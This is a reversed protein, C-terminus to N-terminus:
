NLAANLDNLYKDAIENVKSILCNHARWTSGIPAEVHKGHYDIGLNLETLKTKVLDSLKNWIKNATAFDGTIQAILYEKFYNM